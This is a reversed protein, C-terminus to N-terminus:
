GVINLLEVENKKFDSYTTEKDEFYKRVKKGEPYIVSIGYDSRYTEVKVDPYSKIFGVVARWVDGTWEKQERPVNQMDKSKPITDHIIIAKAGQKMANTIDKRVQQATHDGDIFVVDFEVDKLDFFEDSTLGSVNLLEKEINPDCAVKDECEIKDFNYGDGYGIELYSTSLTNRIIENILYEKKEM